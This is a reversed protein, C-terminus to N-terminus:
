SVRRWKTVNYTQNPTMSMLYIAYANDTHVKVNGQCGEKKKFESIVSLFGDDGSCEPLEGADWSRSVFYEGLATADDLFIPEGSAKHLRILGDLCPELEVLSNFPPVKNEPHLKRFELADYFEEVEQLWKKDGTSEYLQLKALQTWCSDTYLTFNDKQLLVNNRKRTIEDASNLAKISLSLYSDKLYKRAGEVDDTKLYGNAKLWTMSGPDDLLSRIIAFERAEIAVLMPHNGEVTYPDPQQRMIRLGVGNALLFDLYDASPNVKYAEYVPILSWYYVFPDTGSEKLVEKMRGVGYDMLEIYRRDGTANYLGAYALVAWPYSTVFSIEENLKCSGDQLCDKGYLYKDGKKLSSLFKETKVAVDLGDVQLSVEELVV